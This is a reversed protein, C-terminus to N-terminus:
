LALGVLGRLTVPLCTHLEDASDCPTCRLGMGSLETCQEVDLQLTGELSAEDILGQGFGVTLIGDRLPLEGTLTPLSVDDLTFFAYPDADFSSTLERAQGSPVRRYGGATDAIAPELNIRITGEDLALVEVVLAAGLQRLLRLLAKQEESNGTTAFRLDIAFRQGRLEDDFHPGVPDLLEGTRFTGTQVDGCGRAAWRLSRHSPWPRQPLALAVGEGAYLITPLALTGDYVEVQLGGGTGTFALRLATTRSVLPQNGGIDVSLARCGAGDGHPAAVEKDAEDLHVSDLDCGLFLFVLPLLSGLLRSM